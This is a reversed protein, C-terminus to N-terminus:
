ARELYGILQNKAQNLWESASFSRRVYAKEEGEFRTEGVRRHLYNHSIPQVDELPKLRTPEKTRLPGMFRVEHDPEPIQELVAIRLGRQRVETQGDHGEVLGDTILVRVRRAVVVRDRGEPQALDIPAHLSHLRAVERSEGHDHQM